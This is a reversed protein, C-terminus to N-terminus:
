PKTLLRAATPELTIPELKPTKAIVVSACIFMAAPRSGLGSLVTEDAGLRGETYGTENPGQRFVETHHARDRASIGSLYGVVPMAPQQARAALPWTTAADGVLTIFERTEV